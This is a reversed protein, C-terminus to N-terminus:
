IQFLSVPGADGDGGGDDYDDDVVAEMMMVIMMVVMMMMMIQWFHNAINFRHSQGRFCRDAGPEVAQLTLGAM